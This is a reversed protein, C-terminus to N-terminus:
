TKYYKVANFLTIGALIPCLVCGSIFDNNIIGLIMYIITGFLFIVMLTFYNPKPKDPNDAVLRKGENDEFSDHLIMILDVMSLFWSFGSIVISLGLSLDISLFKMIFIPFLFLSFYILGSIYKGVYFRHAGFRGLFFCLLGAAFQSRQSYESEIIFEDNKNKEIM